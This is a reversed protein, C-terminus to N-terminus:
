SIDRIESIKDGEFRFISRGQLQLVDDKKLGNPLDCALIAHYNIEIETENAEHKFSTITQKRASFFAKAKEAQDKFSSIGNLVM